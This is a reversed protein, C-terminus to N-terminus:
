QMEEPPMQVTREIMLICHERGEHNYQIGTTHVLYVDDTGLVNLALAPANESQATPPFYKTGGTYRSDYVLVIFGEEIIVDHYRVELNGFHEMEFVIQVSPPGVAPAPENRLEIERLERVQPQAQPAQNFASLPSVRRRVPQQPPPAQQQPPQQYQPQRPPQQPPPAQQQPQQPLQEGQYPQHVQPTYQQAPAPTPAAHQMQREAGQAIGHMIASGRLRLTEISTPEPTVEAAMQAAAHITRENLDGLRVRSSQGDIHPDINVEIDQTVHPRTGQPIGGMTARPIVTGRLGEPGPRMVGTMPMGSATQFEGVDRYGYQSPPTVPRGTDRPAITAAGTGDREGDFYPDIQIARLQRTM